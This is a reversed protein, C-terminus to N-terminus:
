NGTVEKIRGRTPQSGNSKALREELEQIYVDRKIIEFNLVANQEVLRDIIKESNMKM